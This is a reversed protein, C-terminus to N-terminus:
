RISKLLKKLDYKSVVRPNNGMRQPNFGNRVINEIGEGDIGLKLLSTELKIEKMINFFKNRAEVPATVGLINLLEDIRDKVFKIGRKDQLSDTDVDSNFEFFYPLTLSVAHGHPVNFYSTIPYSLSHAATTKAINIAKGALNSGKLMNERSKRDPNNVVRVINSLILEIAKKSYIRSEETSNVSWFSEIAQCFADMGTCATIYPPLKETFTSDLIAYDPLISPHELSHKTKDIYVVAFHTSECGTGATTPVMVTPTKRDLLPWGKLIIEKLGKTQIASISVAKAMDMVSGGGVALIFDCESENFIRGGKLVDNIKPNLEFDSFQIIAYQNLIKSLLENAGSQKFANPDTVLFIKQPRHNELVAELKKYSGFGSYVIQDM